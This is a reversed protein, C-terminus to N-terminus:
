QSGFSNERIVILGFEKTPVQDADSVSDDQRAPGVEAFGRVAISHTQGARALSLRIPVLGGAASGEHV